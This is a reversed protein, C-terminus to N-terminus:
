RQYPQQDGDDNRRDPYGRDDPRERRSRRSLMAEDQRGKQYGREYANRLADDQDRNGTMLGQLMQPVNQARSSAPVTIVLALLAGAFITNKLM